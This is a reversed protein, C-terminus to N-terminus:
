RAINFGFSCIEYESCSPHISVSFTSVSSVRLNWDVTQGKFNNEEGMVVQYLNSALNSGIKIKDTRHLNKEKAVDYQKHYIKIIGMERCAKEQEKNSVLASFIPGKKESENKDSEKNKFNYNQRTPSKRKYSELLKKGLEEICSRKLSKLESYPLFSVGDYDITM